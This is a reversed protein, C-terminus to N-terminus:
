LRDFELGAWDHSCALQSMRFGADAPRLIDAVQAQTPVPPRRLEALGRSELEVKRRLRQGRLM